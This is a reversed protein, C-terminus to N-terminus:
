TEGAPRVIKMFTEEFSKAQQRIERVEVGRKVLETVLGKRASNAFRLLVRDPALRRYRSIVGDATLAALVRDDLNDGGVIVEEGEGEGDRRLENLTGAAAVRGRDLVTVADCIKEVHHLDHTTLLITVGKGRALAQLRDRLDVAAAPDLGTFPEDLLLLKPEGLLARVIALKQRMGKSFIGVCASRHEWLDMERLLEEMRRRAVMRDIRRIGAHFELNQLATMREYHGDHDLLVGVKRRVEKADVNPDVGLVRVHGADARVLGLLIRVTTTKGAGNVGLFGFVSGEEVRMEVADLVLKDGFQKHVGVLEIAARPIM